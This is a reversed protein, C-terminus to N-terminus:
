RVAAAAKIILLQTDKFYNFLKSKISLDENLGGL